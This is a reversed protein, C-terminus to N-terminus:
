GFDDDIIVHIDAMMYCLLPPPVFFTVDCRRGQLSSLLLDHRLRREAGPFASIGPFRFLSARFSARARM